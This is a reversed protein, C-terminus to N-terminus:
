LDVCNRDFMEEISATDESQQLSYQQPQQQTTSTPASPDVKKKSQKRTKCSCRPRFVFLIPLCTLLPILAGVFCDRLWRIYLPNIWLPDAVGIVAVVLGFVAAVAVIIVHFALRRLQKDRKSLQNATGIAGVSKKM